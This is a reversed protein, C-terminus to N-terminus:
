NPAMFRDGWDLKKAARYNNKEGASVTVAQIEGGANCVQFDVRNKSRKPANVIRAGEGGVMSRALILYSFKEDEIGLEASKLLRHIRSREVRAPFHCWDGKRMPCELQHPCPAVINAGRNLFEKRARTIRAFGDVTGPEIVVLIKKTLDWLCDLYSQRDDEVIEGLVYSMTVLDAPEDGPPRKGSNVEWSINTSGVFDSIKRAVELMASDRDVARVKSLTTWRALAALVATGPGTGVDLMSCPSFNGLESFVRAVVAATAPMRAAVYALRELDSVFGSFGTSSRYRSSLREHAERVAALGAAEVQNDIWERIKPSLSM